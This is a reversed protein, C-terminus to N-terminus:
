ARSRTVVVIIKAKDSRPFTPAMTLFSSRCTAARGRLSMEKFTSLSLAPLHGRYNTPNVTENESEVKVRM